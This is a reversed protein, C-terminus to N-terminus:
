NKLAYETGCHECYPMLSQRMLQCKDCAKYLSTGCHSCHYPDQDEAHYQAINLKKLSRRTWFAYRMPGRRIPYECVPCLFHEYADRFQKLLYSAAPFARRKLLDKLAFFVVIILFTTLIYKFYHSPFYDHVVFFTKILIALGISTWIIRSYSASRNFLLFVVIALLAILLGIQLLGLKMRHTKMADYYHKQAQSM